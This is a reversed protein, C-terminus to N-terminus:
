AICNFWCVINQVPWVEFNGSSGVAGGPSSKGYSCPPDVGHTVTHEVRPGWHGMWLQCVLLSYRFGLVVELSALPGAPACAWHSLLSPIALWVPLLKAGFCMWASSGFLVQQHLLQLFVYFFTSVSLVATVSMTPCLLLHPFQQQHPLSFIWPRSSVGTGLVM